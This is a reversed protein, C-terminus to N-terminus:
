EKVAVVSCDTNLKKAMSVAIDKSDFPGILLAHKKNGNKDKVSKVSCSLGSIKDSYKTKVNKIEEQLIQKNPGSAMKIYYTKEDVISYEDISANIDHNDSNAIRKQVISSSDGGDTRQAKKHSIVPEEPIPLVSTETEGDERSTGFSDGVGDMNEYIMRDQYPIDVGGPNEPLIKFSPNEPEIVVPRAAGSASQVPGGGSGWNYAVWSLSVLSIASTFAIIFKSWVSKFNSDNKQQRQYYKRKDLYEDDRDALYQQQQPLRQQNSGRVGGAGGGNYMDRPHASDGYRQLPPMERKQYRVMKEDMILPNSFYEDPDYQDNSDMLGEDMDDDFDDNMQINQHIRQSFRSNDRNNSGRSSSSMFVDDYRLYNQRSGMNNHNRNKPKNVM